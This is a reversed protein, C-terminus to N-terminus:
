AAVRLASANKHMALEYLEGLTSHEDQPDSPFCLKWLASKLDAPLPLPNGKRDRADRSFRAGTFLVVEARSLQSRLRSISHEDM